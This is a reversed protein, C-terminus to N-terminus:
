IAALKFLENIATRPIRTSRGIKAARLEGKEILRYITWRSANILQCTEVITLFEKGTLDAHQHEKVEQVALQIKEDRKKKKYNKKACEDSCCQTVTTKAIFAKGCFQCNKQLRINSSVQQQNYSCTATHLM